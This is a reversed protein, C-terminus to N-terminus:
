FNLEISIPCHDSGMARNNISASKLQKKLNKSIFFYDIRWGINRERARTKLDWWTYNEAKSNFVRFTDIFGNSIVKDIWAREQPLFGSTKENAKPRSLDIEKHATNIDGCFIVEHGKKNETIIEKLFDEYFDMKYKLRQSSAKGNPFYVNYLTFKKYEAKIFRGESDFEKKFNFNIKLPKEKTYLAVGSYGKKEPKSFYSFFGSINLIDEPLQDQHAKTEQLCVIDSKEEKLWNLFGKKYAARLGNVNWASIKM